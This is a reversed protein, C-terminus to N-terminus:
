RGGERLALEARERDAPTNVNLFIAAGGFPAVAAEDLFLVRMEGLVAHVAREGRALARDLVPLCAPDYAAALVQDEGALRPVVADWGPAAGVLFRLLEATVLPVDCALALAAQGADCLSLGHRLAPLPGAQARGSATEDAQRAGRLAAASRPPGIVLPDGGAARVIDVARQLLTRGGVEVLAKDTGM